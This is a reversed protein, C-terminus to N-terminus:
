PIRSIDNKCSEQSSDQTQYFTFSRDSKPAHKEDQHYNPLYLKVEGCCTSCKLDACLRVEVENGICDEASRGNKCNRDRYKGGFRCSCNSWNSWEGWEPGASDTCEVRLGRQLRPQPNIKSWARTSSACTNSGFEAVMQFRTKFFLFRICLIKLQSGCHEQLIPFICINQHLFLLIKRTFFLFIPTSFFTQHLIFNAYFIFLIAM